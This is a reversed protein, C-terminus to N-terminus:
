NAGPWSLMMLAYTGGEALWEKELYARAASQLLQRELDNYKYSCAFQIVEGECVMIPASDPLCITISRLCQFYAENRGKVENYYPKYTFASTDIVNHGFLKNLGELANLAFRRTVGGRDDYARRIVEMDHHKTDITLLFRDQPKLINGFSRILNAAENRGMNGVSCGLSLLVRPCDPITALWERGNDFTGWLGGCRVHTYRGRLEGLTRSLESKDLDLALYTISKRQAELADLILATKRLAGAGLEVFLAGDPISETIDAAYKTLIDFELQTIYYDPQYTIEEFLRLGTEDYLLLIPLEKENYPQALGITVAQRIAVDFGDSGTSTSKSRIDIIPIDGQSKWLSSKFTLPDSTPHHTQSFM